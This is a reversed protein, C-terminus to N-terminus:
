FFFSLGIAFKNDQVNFEGFVDDLPADLTNLQKNEFSYLFNIGMGVKLKQDYSDGARFRYKAGLQFAPLVMMQYAYEDRQDLLTSGGEANGRKFGIGMFLAVRDLSYPENYFYYNAAVGFNGESFRGNIEPAIEYFGISRRWEFEITASKLSQVLRGLQFEYGVSISYGVGRFNEDAENGFRNISSSYRLIFEHAQLQDLGQRQRREEEAIGSELMFDRLERDNLNASWLKGDREIRDLARPRVVTQTQKQKNIFEAYTNELVTSRRTEDELRKMMDREYLSSIGHSQQNFTKVLAQVYSEFIAREEERNRASVDAVQEPRNLHKAELDNLYDHVFRLGKQEVWYDFNTTVQDHHATRESATDIAKQDFDQDDTAVYELPMGERKETLHDLLTKGETLIVKEQKTKFPRVGQLARDELLYVLRQGRRFAEALEVEHLYWYSYGPETKIVEAYGVTRLEPREESGRQLLLRARTGRKLAELHGRNLVISRGSRSVQLVEVGELLPAQQAQAMPVTLLIVSALTKIFM